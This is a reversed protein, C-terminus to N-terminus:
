WFFFLYIIVECRTTTQKNTTRYILKYIAGSTTTPQKMILFKNDNCNLDLCQFWKENEVNEFKKKERLMMCFLQLSPPESEVVNKLLTKCPTNFTTAFNDDDDLAVEACPETWPDTPDAPPEDCFADPVDDPWEDSWM